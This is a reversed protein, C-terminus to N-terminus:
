LDLKIFLRRFYANQLQHIFGTTLIHYRVLRHALRQKRAAREQAV